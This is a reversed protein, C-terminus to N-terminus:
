LITIYRLLNKKHRQVAGVAALLYDTTGENAIPYTTGENEKWAAIVSLGACAAAGHGLQDFAPACNKANANSYDFGDILIFAEKYKSRLAQLSSTSSAGAMMAVQSYACKTMLPRTFRDVIDAAALHMLRTGTLLDQLETASRNGTRVVVFLDKGNDKMVSFYPRLGDSGIYAPMVLGDYSFPCKEGMLQQANYEAECVSLAEVGDLLVYYGLKKAHQLLFSLSDLGASGGLSFSPYSFRVAPIMGKLGDLLETFYAQRAQIFDESVEMIQPPIHEPLAFMNVVTPNKIKRIRDQLMDVSM